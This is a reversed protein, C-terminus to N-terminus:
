DGELSDEIARGIATVRLAKVTRKLRTMEAELHEFAERCSSLAAELATNRAQLRENENRLVYVSGHVECYEWGWGLHRNYEVKCGCHFTHEAPADTMEFLQAELQEIREEPTM